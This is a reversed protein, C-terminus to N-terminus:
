SSSLKDVALSHQGPSSFRPSLCFDPTQTLSCARGMLLQLGLHSALLATFLDITPFGYASPSERTAPPGQSLVLEVGCASGSLSWPERSRYSGLHKQSQPKFPSGQRTGASGM